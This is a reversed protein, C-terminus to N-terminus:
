GLYFVDGRFKVEGIEMDAIFNRSGWFSGKDEKEEKRRKM